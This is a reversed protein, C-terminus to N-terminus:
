VNEVELTVPHTSAYSSIDGPNVRVTETIYGARYLLGFVESDRLSEYSRFDTDIKNDNNLDRVYATIAM